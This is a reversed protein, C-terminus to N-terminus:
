PVAAVALAVALLLADAIREGAAIGGVTLLGAVILALVAVTRGFQSLRKQLPTPSRDIGGILHALRGLASDAGTATVTAELRGAVLTTGAETTDGETIDVLVSEGTLNSVDLRAGRATDVTADAPVRAGATLLIRDGPVIEANPKVVWRGDRLVESHPAALDELADLAREARWGHLTELGSNLLVIAGIVIADVPVGPRGEALWVGLDLGLAGLLLVVLPSKLSKLLRRALSPKAATPLENLGHQKLRAQAERESLGSPAPNPMGRLM